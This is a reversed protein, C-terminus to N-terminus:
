QNLTVILKMMVKVTAIFEEKMDEKYIELYKQFEEDLHNLELLDEFLIDIKETTPLFCVDHNKQSPDDIKCGECKERATQGLKRLM